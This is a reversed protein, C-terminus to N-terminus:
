VHEIELEKIKDQYDKIVKNLFNIQSKLEKVSEKLQENQELIFDMIRTEVSNSM